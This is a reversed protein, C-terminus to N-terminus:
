FTKPWTFSFASGQGIASEVWISGGRDEVIKKVITLGIGTGKQDDQGILTQFIGFIKQHNEPAIGPGDDAVTFQWCSQQEALLIQVQGDPRHHYKIANGILNAFVQRLLLAQTGITPLNASFKVQFAPPPMLFGVVEALLQSINIPVADINERGVRAYQLLGNVLTNMQLVRSQILQLQQQSEIPIQSGLDIVLWEALNSIGRLPAQLDHSAIYAFDDLDQNRHQLEAILEAQQSAIAQQYQRELNLQIQHETLAEAVSNALQQPTLQGKILYNIAGYKIATAAVTESGQGTLMIVPPLTGLRGTLDQLFELGNTDPLLYDLLIVDPCDRDCIELADAASECDLISYSLNNASELYHRYTSRDVESDDVILVVCSAAPTDDWHKPQKTHSIM